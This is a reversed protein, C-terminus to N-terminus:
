EFGPKALIGNPTFRFNIVILSTHIHFKSNTIKNRNRFCLNKRSQSKSHSKCKGPHPQRVYSGCTFWTGFTDQPFEQVQRQSWRGMGKIVTLHHCWAIVNILIAEKRTSARISFLVFVQIISTRQLFYIFYNRKMFIYSTGGGVLELWQWTTEQWVSFCMKLAWESHPFLSTLARFALNKHSLANLISPTLYLSILRVFHCCGFGQGSACACVERRLGM